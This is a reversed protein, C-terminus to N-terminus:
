TRAPLFANASMMRFPFVAHELVALVDAAKTAATNKRFSESQFQYGQPIMRFAKRAAESLAADILDSYLVFRDRDSILRV